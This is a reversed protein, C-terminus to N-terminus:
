NEDKEEYILAQGITYAVKTGMQIPMQFPGGIPKFGADIHSNVKAELEVALDCEVIKYYKKKM